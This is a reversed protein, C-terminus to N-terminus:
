IYIHGLQERSTLMVQAINRRLQRIRLWMEEIQHLTTLQPSASCGGNLHSYVPIQNDSSSQAPIAHPNHTENCSSLSDISNSIPFNQHSSTVFNSEYIHSTMLPHFLSNGSNSSFQANSVQADLYSNPTMCVFSQKETTGALQLGGVSSVPIQFDRDSESVSSDLFTVPILTTSSINGQTSPIQFHTTHATTIIINPFCFVLLM